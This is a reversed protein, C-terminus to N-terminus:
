EADEQRYRPCQRCARYMQTREPNGMRFERAKDRWDQCHQTPLEGKAPCLVQGNLYVGRVREEIRDMSAPYTRTLVQSIVAASRDLARAVKGQTTRECALAMAEVWDPMEDAWAARARELPGNM